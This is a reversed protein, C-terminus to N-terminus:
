LFNITFRALAGAPTVVVDGDDHQAVVPNHVAGAATVVVDGDDHQAVVSNHLALHMAFHNRLPPSAQRHRQM